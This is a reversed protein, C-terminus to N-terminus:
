ARGQWPCGRKSCVLRAGLRTGNSSVTDQRLVPEDCLPCRSGTREGQKAARPANPGAPRNM